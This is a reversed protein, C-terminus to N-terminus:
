ARREAVFDNVRLPGACAPNPCDIERGKWEDRYPHVTNCHPCRIVLGEGFDTGTLIIRRRADRAGSGGDGGPMKELALAYDDRIQYIGTYTIFTNGEVDTSLIRGAHTAKKELFDFDTLTALVEDWLEGMTQQYPLESMTRLNPVSRDGGSELGKERFYAALERHRALGEEGALYHEAVAEALQRHYFGMLSVDDATRETLYPELDYYLRSWIIVPLTSVDPSKPARHRFDKLVAGGSGGLSLVDIMEDETLGNKAAGLYGLSRSVVVKGHNAEDDLRVFLKEKILAPITPPLEVDRHTSKWRRAEEFALKLWLPLGEVAFRRLVADRQLQQLRRDAEGFWLDLLEDAEDNTMALLEVKNEAPLRGELVRMSDGALTSVIMRVGPPLEFPLWSLSSAGEADSLQDLADLIVVLPRSESALALRSPFDQVLERYDSPITSEDGDFRRSIERSLSDLLSRGNSSDPTAGIFRLVVADPFREAAGQAARAMVTSKGAGGSGFVALPKGNPQEVYSAIRQLVDTRGRFLRAREIGFAAHADIEKDIADVEELRAIEQTIVRLLDEHVEACLRDIHDTTVPADRNGTWRADYGHVNERPLRRLETKLKELRAAATGDRAGMEDLNVFDKLLEDQSLSDGSGFDITRFYCFVHDPLSTLAGRQIEQETASTEFRRREAVELPMDRVADELEARLRREIPAWVDDSREEGDRPKLYYEAPVANEDLLYWTELLSRADPDAVRRLAEDFRDQPIQPPPPQWGYRDGLLVIFNPRPSTDQCRKVEDLCINITQQDLGAETSVGWRLDIAQFRAGNELCFAQLPKFVRDQLANREEKLDAFTSSVFVRFTRRTRAV